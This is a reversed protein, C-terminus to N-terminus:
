RKIYEQFGETQTLDSRLQRLQTLVPDLGEVGHKVLLPKMARAMALCQEVDDFAQVEAPQERGFYHSVDVVEGVPDVDVSLKALRGDTSELDSM